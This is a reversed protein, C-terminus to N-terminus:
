FRLGNFNFRAKEEVLNENEIKYLILNEWEVNLFVEEIEYSSTTM